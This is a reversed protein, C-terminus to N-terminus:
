NLLGYECFTCNVGNKSSIERSSILQWRALDIAPFWACPKAVAMDVWTVYLHTAMPLTQKFIEGGGIICIEDRDAFAALAEEISPFVAVDAASFNNRSVVVSTRGPLAKGISEFTKRGMIMVKGLTLNKFHVLDEPLHWPLQNNAGIVLDRNAAVILSIKQTM